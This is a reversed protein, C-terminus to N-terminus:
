GGAMWTDLCKRSDSTVTFDVSALISKVDFDVLVVAGAIMHSLAARMGATM